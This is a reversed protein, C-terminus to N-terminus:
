KEVYRHRIQEWMSTKGKSSFFIGGFHSNIEKYYNDRLLIHHAKELNWFPIAPFLHHILHYNEAHMSTFFAEIPHSFRNRSANVNDKATAVMPYHESLEIFWTVAQFVTFYPLLWYLFYFKLGLFYFGILFFVIQTILIKLLELNKCALLRNKILYKISSIINIFFIPKYFYEIFFSKKNKKDFVGTSVYFQYDPDVEINGLRPHHKRVHSLMYSDWSQFILYGSFYTGLVKGLKRNKTLVSHTAEHLVTALARQRSGIMLLTLPLFWYSYESLVIALIIILYDLIVALVGHWNDYKYLSKIDKLIERDFRYRKM